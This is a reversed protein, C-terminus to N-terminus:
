CRRAGPSSATPARVTSSALGTSCTARSAAPGSTIAGATMGLISFRRVPIWFALVPLMVMVGGADVRGWGEYDMFTVMAVPATTAEARALILAFILDDSSYLFSLIATAPLGPGSLPLIVKVFAQGM